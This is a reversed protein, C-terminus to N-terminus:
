VGQVEKAESDLTHGTGLRATHDQAPERLTKLDVVSCRRGRTNLNELGLEVDKSSRQDSERRVSGQEGTLHIQSSHPSQDIETRKTLSNFTERMIQRFPSALGFVIFIALGPTVGFIYGTINSLARETSLDPADAQADRAVDKAQPIHTVISAAIFGSILAIAISLRIVLWSNDFVVGQTAYASIGSVQNRPTGSWILRTWWTDSGNSLGANRWEFKSAIYKRIVAAILIVSLMSTVVSQINAVIMYVMFRSSQVAPTQLVAITVIATFLPVLRGTWFLMREAHRKTSWTDHIVYAIQISYTFLYSSEIIYCFLRMMALVRMFGFNGNNFIVDANRYNAKTYYLQKWMLDDWLAYNYIQQIISSVCCLAAFYGILAVYHLPERTKWYLWILFLSSLLCIFTFILVGVASGLTGPPLQSM